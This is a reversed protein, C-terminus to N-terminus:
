ILPVGTENIERIFSSNREQLKNWEDEIDIDKLRSFEGASDWIKRYQEFVKSNESSLNKWSEIRGAEAETLHGSFYAPLLDLIESNRFEETM